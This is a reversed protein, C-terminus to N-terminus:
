VYKLFLLPEELIKKYQMMYNSALAGDIFRHDFSLGINVSKKLVLKNDIVIPTKKISNVVMIASENNNIIPVGIDIGFVGVNSITFTANRMDEVTNRGNKTREILLKINKVYDILNISNVNKINPVILGNPTNIAIGLNIENKILVNKGDWESNLYIFQKDNLVTAALYSMLIFPTIELNLEKNLCKVSKILKNVVCSISVYAQPKQNVSKTMNNSMEALVKEKKLSEKDKSKKREIPTKKNSGVMANLNSAINKLKNIDYKNNNEETKLNGVIIGDEEHEKNIEKQTSKKSDEKKNNSINELENISILKHNTECIDGEKVYLKDVIGSYPSPLEIMAKATELEAITQNVEVKDGVNVYWKLITAETLGEGLDPLLFDQM